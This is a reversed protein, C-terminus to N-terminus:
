SLFVPDGGSRGHIKLLLLSFSVQNHILVTCYITTKDFQQMLHFFALTVIGWNFLWITANASENDIYYTNGCESVWNKRKLWLLLTLCHNHSQLHYWYTKTGKLEMHNNKCYEHMCCEGGNPVKFVYEGQIIKDDHVPAQNTHRFKEIVAVKSTFNLKIELWKLFCCTIFLNFIIAPCLSNFIIQAPACDAGIFPPSFFTVSSWSLCICLYNLVIHALACDVGHLPPSFFMVAPCQTSEITIM